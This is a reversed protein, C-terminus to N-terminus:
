TTGMDQSNHITSSHVHPHMYRKSNCNHRSIHEPSPAPDYPLEINLKGYHNNWNVKGGVTYSPERKKVGEGANTKQLLTLDNRAKSTSRSSMRPRLITIMTRLWSLVAVM